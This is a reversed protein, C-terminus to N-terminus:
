KLCFTLCLVLNFFPKASDHKSFIKTIEHKKHYIESMASTAFNASASAKPALPTLGM